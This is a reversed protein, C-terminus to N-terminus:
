SSATALHEVALRAVEGIPGADIAPVALRGEASKPGRRTRKGGKAAYPRGRDWAVGAIDMVSAPPPDITLMEDIM